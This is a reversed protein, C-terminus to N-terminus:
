MASTVSSTRASSFSSGLLDCIEQSHCHYLIYGAPGPAPVSLRSQVPLLSASSATPRPPEPVTLLFPPLCPAAHAPYGHPEPSLAPLSPFESFPLRPAPYAPEPALAPVSLCSSHLLSALSTAASTRRAQGVHGRDCTCM